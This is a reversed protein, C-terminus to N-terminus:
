YSFSTVLFLQSDLFFILLVLVMRNNLTDPFTALLCRPVEGDIHMVVYRMIFLRGGRTLAKRQGRQLDGEYFLRSEYM